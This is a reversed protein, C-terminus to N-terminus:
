YSEYGWVYLKIPRDAFDICSRVSVSYGM